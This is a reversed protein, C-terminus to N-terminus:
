NRALEVAAAQKAVYRGSDVNITLMRNGSSSTKCAIRVPGWNGNEVAVGNLYYVRSHGQENIFYTKEVRLDRTQNGAKLRCNEYGRTEAPSAGMGALATASLLALGSALITQKFM